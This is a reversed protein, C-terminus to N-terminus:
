KNEKTTKEAANSGENPRAFFAESKWEGGVKRWVRLYSGTFSVHKKDATDYDVTFNGFDYAMDKSEAVVLRVVETKQTENLRSKMIKERQPKMADMQQKGVIPRPFAGSVLIADDTRKIAGPESDARSILDRLIQEDTKASQANAKIAGCIILATLVMSFLLTKM